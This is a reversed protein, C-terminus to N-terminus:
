QGSHSLFTEIKTIERDAEAIHSVISVVGWCALTLVAGAVFGIVYEKFKM